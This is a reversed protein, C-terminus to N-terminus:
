WEDEPKNLYDLLSKNIEELKGYIQDKTFNGTSFRSQRNLSLIYMNTYTIRIKNDKIDIIMTFNLYNTMIPTEGRGIIKGAEKDKVEIVDKSDVFNEAM